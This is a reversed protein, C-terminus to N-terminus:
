TFSSRKKVSFMLLVSFMSVNNRKTPLDYVRALEDGYDDQKPFQNPWQDPALKLFDPGEFWVTNKLSASVSRAM